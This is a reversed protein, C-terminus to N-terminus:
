KATWTNTGTKVYLTSTAGGDTRLYLSGKPTRVDNTPPAGSGTKIQIGSISLPIPDVTSSATMAVPIQGITLGESVVAYTNNSQLGTRYVNRNFTIEKRQALNSINYPTDLATGRANICNYLNFYNNSITVGKAYDQHQSGTLQNSFWIANHQFADRTAGCGEIENGNIELGWIAASPHHVSNTEVQIAAAVNAGFTNNLIRVGAGGGIYIGINSLFFWSDSITTANPHGLLLIGNDCNHITTNYVRAEDQALVIGYDFGIGNQAQIMVNEVIPRTARRLSIAQGHTPPVNLRKVITLDSVSNFSSLNDYSNDRTIPDAYGTWFGGRFNIVVGNHQAVIKSTERGEGKLHIFHGVRPDNGTSSEDGINIPSNVYYEGKPFYIIGGQRSNIAAAIAREIALDAQTEGAIFFDQVNFIGSGMNLGNPDPNNPTPNPNASVNGLATRHPAPWTQASVIAVCFFGIIVSSMTIKKFSM